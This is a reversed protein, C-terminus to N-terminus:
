NYIYGYLSCLICLETLTMFVNVDVPLYNARYVRVGVYTEIEHEIEFEIKIEIEFETKM